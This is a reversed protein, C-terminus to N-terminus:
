ETMPYMYQCRVVTPYAILITCRKSDGAWTINYKEKEIVDNMGGMTALFEKTTSKKIVRHTGNIHILRPKPVNGILYEQLM